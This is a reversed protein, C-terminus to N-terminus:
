DAAGARSGDGLPLYLSAAGLLALATVLYPATFFRWWEAPLIAFRAIVYALCVLVLALFPPMAAHLAPRRRALFAILGFAGVMCAYAVFRLDAALARAGTALVAFYADSQLPPPPMSVPHICREIASCYFFTSWGQNGAFGVIALYALVCALAALAPKWRAGGGSVFLWLLLPLTFLILDSRVGIALPMMLLLMDMRRQLFLLALGTVALLSLGDPTSYRALDLVGFLLALPPLLYVLPRALSTSAAAFLLLMAIAVAIGSVLHTALEIGIGAKYAVFVLVNYIPRVRYFPLMEGFAAPDTRMAHRYRTRMSDGADTEQAYEEYLADPVASRLERYAFSQLAAPDREEFSEAAAIYAIVDWNHFPAVISVWLACAALVVYLAPAAVRDVARVIAPM